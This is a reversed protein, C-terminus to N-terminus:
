IMVEQTQTPKTQQKTVPKNLWEIAANIRDLGLEMINEASPIGGVSESIKKVQDPTATKLSKFLQIAASGTLYAEWSLEITDPMEYGARTKAHLGAGGAFEILREKGREVAKAKAEGDRQIVSYETRAWGIQDCWDRTKKWSAAEMEGGLAQFDPGMVNAERHTGTHGVMVIGMNRKARIEDLLSLVQLWEHATAIQGKGFSNYGDKGKTPNWNGAFDRTCVFQSCLRQAVTITDIGLWEYDHKGNLVVKLCELFEEFTQCCDGNPLRPASIGFAGNETMIIVIKMIMDLFTTKGVGPAGILILRPKPKIPAKAMIDFRGM